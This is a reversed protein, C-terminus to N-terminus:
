KVRLHRPTSPTSGVVGDRQFAGVDWAQGASRRRGEIDEDIGPCIAKLHSLDVGTGVASNEGVGLRYEQDAFVPAVSSNGSVGPTGNLLEVRDYEEGGYRLRVCGGSIINGRMEVGASGDRDLSVVVASGNSPRESYCNHVINNKVIVNRGLLKGVTATDRIMNIGPANPLDVITNNAIVVNEIVMVDRWREPTRNAQVLLQVGRLVTMAEGGYLLNNYVYWDGCVEEFETGVWVLYTSADFIINNYIRKYRGNPSQIGDPHGVGNGLKGHMYNNYIDVGGGCSIFDDGNYEILNHHVSFEGFGEGRSQNNAFGDYWNHHIHCYGLESADPLNPPSCNFRVGAGTGSVGGCDHVELFRIKLGIPASSYVGDGGPNSVEIGACQSVKDRVEFPSWKPNFKPDGSGDIIVWRASSLNVQNAIVVRGSHRSDSKCVTIVVPASPTGQCYITFPHEYLKRETGGSIYIWDGPKVAPWYIARIDSWADKWSSGDNRGTADKDIYWNTRTMDAPVNPLRIYTEGPASDGLSNYAFVRYYYIKGLSLGKDTLSKSGANWAITGITFWSERNESREVRFGLETNSADKWTLAVTTPSTGVTSVSVNQPPDPVKGPSITVIEDFHCPGDGVETYPVVWYQYTEGIDVQADAHYRADSPLEGVITVEGTRVNRRKVRYGHEIKSRDTWAIKAEGPDQSQASIGTVGLLSVFSVTESPSSYGSGVIARVRYSVLRNAPPKDDTRTINASVQKVIRFDSDLGATLREVVFGTENSWSDTWTLEVTMVSSSDDGKTYSILLGGAAPLSSCLVIGSAVLTVGINVMTKM